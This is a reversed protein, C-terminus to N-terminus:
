AVMLLTVRGWGSPPMQGSYVVLFNFKVCNNLNETSVDFVLTMWFVCGPYFDINQLPYLSSAHLQHCSILQYHPAREQHHPTPINYRASLKRGPAMQRSRSSRLTIWSARGYYRTMQPYGSAWILEFIELCSMVRYMVPRTDCRPHWKM